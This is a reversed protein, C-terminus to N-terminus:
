LNMTGMCGTTRGRSLAGLPSAMKLHHVYTIGGIAMCAGKEGTVAEYAHLLTKVLPSHAPVRHAQWFPLVTGQLGAELFGKRGNGRLKRGDRLMPGPLRM